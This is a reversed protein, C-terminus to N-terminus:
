FIFWLPSLLKLLHQSSPLIRYQLILLLDWCAQYQFPYHCFIHSGWTYSWSNFGSCSPHLHATIHRAGPVGTLVNWRQRCVCIHDRQWDVLCVFQLIANPGYLSLQLSMCKREFCRNRHFGQRMYQSHKEAIYCSFQLGEGAPTYTNKAVIRLDRSNM